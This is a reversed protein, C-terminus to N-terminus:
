RTHIGEDMSQPSNIRCLYGHGRDQRHRNCCGSRGPSELPALDRRSISKATGSGNSHQCASLLGLQHGGTSRDRYNDLGRGISARIRYRAGVAMVGGIGLLLGAVTLIAFRFRLAVPMFRSYPWRLMRVIFTERSSIRRPLVFSALVPIVTLSVILSGTLVLIVTIAMPRFMKGEVGQLMLIPIYVIMIILQGFAAPTRVQVTAERVLDLRSRGTLGPHKAQNHIINELVVVSSDVVIGFDIAGLSLLTAAIGLEFMGCFAFLMSLPIAIAAILGARLNGLVLFLILVVLMAGNLLNARVTAIVDDVLRTRNYMSEAHVGKPLRKNLEELQAQQQKAVAYSNEGMRMFGLGLVAEGKGNATVMGRRISHGIVVDAVHDVLIPRGEKATIVINKIANTDTVRGIGLVLLMDDGHTIYGGGVNLNNGRVAEMVQQLTIDYELLKPPKVRVQYQKQLGGWSNVEATGAVALMEPKIKWDQFTRLEMSAREGLDEKTAASGYDGQELDQEIMRLKADDDATLMYQFVEGLGTAVPGMEPKEAGPPVRVNQLRENVIQRALYIDTGDEFVLFVSSLGFQSDSRIEKLGEIGGMELEIPFTIMREVEDAVMAPAVTNIQVQVPTTDPFADVNLRGLSWVGAITLLAACALVTWRKRLSWSIISELM